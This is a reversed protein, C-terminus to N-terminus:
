PHDSEKSEPNKAAAKLLKKGWQNDFDIEFSRPSTGTCESQFTEKM